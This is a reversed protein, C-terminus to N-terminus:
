YLYTNTSFISNYEYLEDKCTNHVYRDLLEFFKCQNDNIIKDINIQESQSIIDSCWKGGRVNDVGYISMYKLTTILEAIEAERYCNFYNLQVLRYPPYKQTWYSGEGNFHQELRQKINKSFGVYYHNGGRLKLVYIYCHQHFDKIWSPPHKNLELESLHLSEM